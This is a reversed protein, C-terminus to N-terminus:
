ARRLKGYLWGCLGAAPIILVPNIGLVVVCVFAAVAIIWGFVNRIAPKGLSVVASLILAVVCARIGLLMAAIYENHRMQSYFLSVLTLIVFSPVTLGLIAAVAGPVRRLRYGVFVSTNLSIIGPISQCVAFIDVIESQDIWKKKDVFERQMVPLMAYGGGFTSVGIKLTTGFIESLSCRGSQAGIDKDDLLSM